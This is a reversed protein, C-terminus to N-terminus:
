EVPLNENKWVQLGGKLLKANQFGHRKLISYAAASRGGGIGCITVIEQDPKFAHLHKELELLPINRANPIHGKEWEEPTRVDILVTKEGQQFQENLHQVTIDSLSTIPFQEEKWKNWSLFGFVRYGSDTMMEAAKEVPILNNSILIISRNQSIVKKVAQSFGEEQYPVNIAGIACAGNYESEPRLDAFVVHDDSKMREFADSPAFENMTLM